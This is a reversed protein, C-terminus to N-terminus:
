FLDVRQSLEQRKFISNKRINTMKEVIVRNERERQRNFMRERSNRRNQQSSEFSFSLTRRQSSSDREFFRCFKVKRSIFNNNVIIFSKRFRFTVLFKSPITTQNLAITKQEKRQQQMLKTERKLQAIFRADNQERRRQAVARAIVVRRAKNTSTMHYFLSIIYSTSHAFNLRIQNLNAFALNPRSKRQWPTALTKFVLVLARREQRVQSRRVDMDKLELVSYPVGYRLEVNISTACGHRLFPFLRRPGLSLLRKHPVNM